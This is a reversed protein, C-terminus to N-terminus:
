RGRFQELFSQRRAEKLDENEQPDKSNEEPAGTLDRLSRIGADAEPYQPVSVPGLEMLKVELIKRHPLEDELDEWEQRVVHFMFSSGDIDGRDLSARLNQGMPSDPLDCEYALGKSDVSLRLTESKTRGLLNDFNHNFTCRVDAEKLTKNFAKPDIEETFWDGIRTRVGFVAGYGVVTGTGEEESDVRLEVAETAARTEHSM